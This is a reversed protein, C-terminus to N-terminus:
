TMGVHTAYFTDIGDGGPQNFCVQEALGISSLLGQRLRLSITSQGCLRREGVSKFNIGHAFAAFTPLSGLTHTHSERQVRECCLFHRLQLIM